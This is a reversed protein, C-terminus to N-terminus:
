GPVEERTFRQEVMSIRVLNEETIRVRRQKWAHTVTIRQIIRPLNYAPTVTVSSIRVTQLFRRRDVSSLLYQKVDHVYPMITEKDVITHPM